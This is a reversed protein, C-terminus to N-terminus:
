ASDPHSGRHVRRSLSRVAPKDCLLILLLKRGTFSEVYMAQYKQYLFQVGVVVMGVTGLVPALPAAVFGFVTTVNAVNTLM